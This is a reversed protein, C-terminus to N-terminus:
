GKWSGQFAFESMPIRVREGDEREKLKEDLVSPDGPYGIAMMSGPVFQEPVGLVSNANEFDFGAMQHGVLGLSELQLVMYGSSCGTDHMGHRNDKDNKKFNMSAFSILLVGAEKAWSNGEVLLSELKERGEGEKVAYIYRWPQENYSSPAWRAAEFLTEIKEQEVPQNSFALPSWRKTIAELIPKDTPAPKSPYDM